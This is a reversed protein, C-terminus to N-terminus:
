TPLKVTRFWFQEISKINELSEVYNVPKNIVCSAHMDYCMNIDQEAESATLVIVPIRKLDPDDKIERLVERGDKRPMNLDLIIM